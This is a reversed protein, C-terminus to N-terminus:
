VEEPKEVEEVEEVEEIEEVEVTATPLGAPVAPSPTEVVTAAKQLRDMVEKRRMRFYVRADEDLEELRMGFLRDEEKAVAREKVAAIHGAFLENKVQTEHVLKANIEDTANGLKAKKAKKKGLPREALAEQLEAAANANDDADDSARRKGKTPPHLVEVWKPAEKLIYWCELFKFTSGEDAKFIAEADVVIDDSTKGSRNLARVKAICGCFKSVRGSIKGLTSDSRDPGTNPDCGGPGAHVRCLQQKDAALLCKKKPWLRHNRGGVRAALVQM